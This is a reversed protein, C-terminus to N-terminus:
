GKVLNPNYFGEKWNFRATGEIYASKKCANVIFRYDSRAVETHSFDLLFKSFGKKELASIRDTICFPKEPLVFSASPTSFARFSDGQKDSFYLFDYSEPLKFRMRFLAPYAFVPILIQKRMGPDFVAELNDQSNEIPSIFRTIENNQLWRVAWRNFIYLYPGCILNLGKNKLMSIHAPNNLIFQKFGLEILDFLIIELEDSKGEPLFPDLSIFIDRASFPLPNNKANLLDRQTDENLNIIVKTPRDALITRLSTISSVQVFIGDPFLDFNTKTLLRKKDRVSTKESSRKAANNKTPPIKEDTSKNEFEDGEPFLKLAPM